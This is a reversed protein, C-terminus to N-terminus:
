PGVPIALRRSAVRSPTPSHRSRVRAPTADAPPRQPSITIVVAGAQVPGDAAPTAAMAARHCVQTWFGTSLGDGGGYVGGGRDGGVRCPTSVCYDKGEM